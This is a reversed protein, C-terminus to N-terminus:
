YTWEQPLALEACAHHHFAVAANQQQQQMTMMETSSATESTLNCKQEEIEKTTAPSGQEEEGQGAQQEKKSAKEDRTPSPKAPATATAAKAHYVDTRPLFVGTGGGGGGAVGGGCHLKVLPSGLRRNYLAGGNVVGTAAAVQRQAPSSYPSFPWAAAAAGGYAVLVPREMGCAPLPARRLHHHYSAAPVAAPAPAPCPSPAVKRGGAGAGGGGGLLGALHVALGEIAAPPAPADGDDAFGIDDLIEPPLWRRHLDDMELAYCDAM